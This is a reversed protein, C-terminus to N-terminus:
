PRLTCARLERSVVRTVREVLSPTADLPLALTVARAAAAPAPAAAAEGRADEAGAESPALSTAADLFASECSAAVGLPAAADGAERPADAGGPQM